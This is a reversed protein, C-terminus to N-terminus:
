WEPLISAPFRRNFARLSLLVPVMLVLDYVTSPLIDNLLAGRVDAHHGLVAVAVVLITGYAVGAAAMAIPAFIATSVPINRHVLDVFYAVLALALIHSGPPLRSLLDLLLGGFIAWPLAEGRGRVVAWCVVAVLVLQPRALGVDLHPVLSTQLAVLLAM